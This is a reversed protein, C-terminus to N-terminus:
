REPAGGDDGPSVRFVDAARLGLKGVTADDPVGTAPLGKDRQFARLAERTPGDLSGSRHDASLHGEAVLKEQITEVAHAKMQGAPSTTIRVGGNGASDGGTRVGKGPGSKAVAEHHTKAVPEAPARPSEANAPARPASPASPDVDGVHRAHACAVPGGCALVTWVFGVVATAVSSFAPEGPAPANSTM